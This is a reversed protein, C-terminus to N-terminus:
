RSVWLMLVPCKFIAAVSFNSFLKFMKHEVEQGNEECTLADMADAQENAMVIVRGLDSLVYKVKPKTEAPNGRQARREESTVAPITSIADKYVLQPM